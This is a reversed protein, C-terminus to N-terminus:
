INSSGGKIELGKSFIKMIEFIWLIVPEIKVSDQFYNWLQNMKLSKDLFLKSEM